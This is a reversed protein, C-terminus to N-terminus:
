EIKRLPLHSESGRGEAQSASARGVSSSGRPHLSLLLREPHVGPSLNKSSTGYCIINASNFAMEYSHPM